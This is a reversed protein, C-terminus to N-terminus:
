HFYNELITSRRLIKRLFSSEELFIEFCINSYCDVLCIKNLYWVFSVSFCGGFRSFKGLNYRYIAQDLAPGDYLQRNRDVAALFKLHQKAATVLDLSILIRQAAAWELEQHDEM